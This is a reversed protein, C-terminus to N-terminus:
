QRVNLFARGEDDGLAPLRLLTAEDYFGLWVQAPDSSGGPLIFTYTDEIVEGPLWVDTPRTGQQPYVDVRYLITGDRDILHGFVKYSQALPNVAQWRVDLFFKSRPKLQTQVTIPLTRELEPLDPNDQAAPNEVYFNYSLLVLDNQGYIALPDDPPSQALYTPELNPYVPLLIFILLARM